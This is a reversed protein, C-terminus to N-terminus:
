KANTINYKRYVRLKADIQQYYKASESFNLTENTGLCLFGRPVLAEDFMSLVREQLSNNFYILVNRCLILHMDGFVGDTVLNHNAFVVNQKLRDDLSYGRDNRQYYDDLSHQGGALCYNKRAIKFRDDTLVGDQALAIADKNFDTGYLITRELLGSEHLAIAMSYVEDGTACGAHWIKLRPYTRLYPFVGERIKAFVSPDRFMETVTISFYKALEAFLAEDYLVKALIETIHTCNEAKVFHGIRRRLSQRAYSRFDYGYRYLVGDLLLNLEIEEIDSQQM